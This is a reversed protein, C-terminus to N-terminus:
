YTLMALQDFIIINNNPEIVGLLVMVPFSVNGATIAGSAGLAFWRRLVDYRPHSIGITQFLSWLGHFLHIGLAVNGLIYVLSVPWSQFGYVVNNYPNLPDLEQGGIGFTLHMLHYVVFLLLIPGSWYMTRSAYNASVYKRFIYHQPRAQKNRMALQVATAIHLLVAALLTIRALWLLSPLDRLSAAYSNFENAGAYLKLNGIMHTTVFGFLILGTVAMIAKKGLTTQHISLTETM